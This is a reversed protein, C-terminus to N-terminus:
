EKEKAKKFTSLIDIGTANEIMESMSIVSAPMQSIFKSFQNGNNGGSDIVSIKDIKIDKVTSALQDVIGPLMNLMFIKEGNGQASNYADIKKKLVEIYADGDAIISSAKGKAELEYAEKKAKAPEIVDATLRKKQLEIREHEMEQEFKVQALQGAVQAEKEKIIATKELEAKKVRFNTKETEIQQDAIARSIKINQDSSIQAQEINQSASAKAKEARERSLSDAEQSAAHKNSEAIMISQETLIRAQEIELKAKSKAIQAREESQAQAEFTRADKDAQAIAINQSSEIQAKEINQKSFAKAKEARELSSAEAEQANAMQEAEVKKARAIVEATKGRGISNLYDNEDSMNTIKLTDLQLGLKQMDIDAEDILTEAFKLRDENVEEPTLSALVGRLNGELTDKAIAHIENATRNLFREVANGFFPESSAIKINAIAEVKLPIGGKSYANTVELEIPITELSMRTAKELLPMKITRGGRITRYGVTEGSPLKRKRGSLIIVENPHAILLMRSITIMVVIVALAAIVALVVISELM